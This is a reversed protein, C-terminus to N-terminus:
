SVAHGYVWRWDRWGLSYRMRAVYTVYVSQDSNEPYIDLPVRDFWILSQKMKVSDVLFWNNADTLYPWVIYRMGQLVNVDNNATGPEQASRAVVEAADQLGPPVIILDPTVGCLSGADDTFAQMLVRTAKVAAASFATTGTNSQTTSAKHPSQPHSASCLYVGDGGTVTAFASNFVAAGDTERKLAASDGLLAAQDLLQNYKNDEILEKSIPLKVAYTTHTFTTKYGRDFGVAPISGSNKFNDWASPSVAGFSHYYESDSSSPLMNFFQDLQSPRRTYGISFWERIGPLLAESFEEKILTM